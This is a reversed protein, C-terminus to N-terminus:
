KLVRKGGSHWCGLEGEGFKQWQQKWSVLCEYPLQNLAPLHNTVWSSCLVASNPVMMLLLLKSLICQVAPTKIVTLMCREGCPRHGAWKGIDSRAWVIGSLHVNCDCQWRYFHMRYTRHWSYVFAFAVLAQFILMNDQLCASRINTYHRWFSTAIVRLDSTCWGVFELSVKMCDVFALFTWLCSYM